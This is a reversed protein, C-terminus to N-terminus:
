ADVINCLQFILTTGAIREWKTATDRLLSHYSAIGLAQNVVCLFGQMFFIKHVRLRALQEQSISSGKHFLDKARRRIFFFTASDILLVVTILTVCFLFDLYFSAFLGCETAAYIWAFQSPSFVYECGESFSFREYPLLVIAISHPLLRGM